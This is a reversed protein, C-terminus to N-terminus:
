LGDTEGTSAAGATEAGGSETREVGAEAASREMALRM